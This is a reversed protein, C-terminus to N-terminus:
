VTSMACGVQLASSQHMSFDPLLTEKAKRLQQQFHEEVPGASKNPSADNSVPELRMTIASSGQPTLTIHLQPLEAASAASEEDEEAHTLRCLCTNSREGLEANECLCALALDPLCM